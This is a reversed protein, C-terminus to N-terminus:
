RRVTDSGPVAKSKSRMKHTTVSGTKLSPKHRPTLKTPLKDYDSLNNWLRIIYDAQDNSLPELQDRLSFLFGALKDVKGFGGVNDPGVAEQLM